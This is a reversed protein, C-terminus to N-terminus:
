PFQAHIANIATQNLTIGAQTEVAAAFQELIDQSMAQNSQSTLTRRAAQTDSDTEDPALIEDMQAILVSNTNPIILSDGLEIKFTEILFEPTTGEIFAGRTINTEVTSPLGLTGIRAGDNLKKLLEEAQTTLRSNIEALEWAEIVKVVADDYPEPHPETIENLRLAFIGGDALEGIEPFDDATTQVVARSFAEYATLGDSSDITWDITSLRMDTEESLEELTAGGALLDDIETIQDGIQRRARDAALEDQLAARADEFPTSRAALIANVRILAPGLDTEVPGAIGTETLAFVAKGAAGLAEQTVDGLDIDQLTLGRATVQDVFSSDGANIDAYAKAAAAQDPFVLREVLRREPTNYEDSREDFLTRLADEDVEIDGIIFDPSLWVYTLNRTEPLMFDNTNEDYYSQLQADDPEALPEHLDARGLEVWSFSRRQGIYDLLTDTFQAPARVGGAVAQQLLSSSVDARVAEEFRSVTQGSRDLTFEYAERDFEGNLGQFAPTQIVQRRVEQDGVSLGLRASENELAASRVLQALANQDIGFSRAESLTINRGFQAQLSRLEQDLAQAYRNVGIPTDGVSGISRATGSLGSAGFGVLGIMILVLVVAMFAKSFKNKGSKAM